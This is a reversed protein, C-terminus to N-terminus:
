LIMSQSVKSPVKFVMEVGRGCPSKVVVLDLQGPDWGPRSYAELSPADM